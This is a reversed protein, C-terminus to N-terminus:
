DRESKSEDLDNRSKIKVQYPKGNSRYLLPVHYIKSEIFRKPRLRPQIIDEIPVETSYDDPNEGINDWSLGHPKHKIPKEEEPEWEKNAEKKPKEFEWDRNEDWHDKGPPEEYSPHGVTDKSGPIVKKAQGFISHGFGFPAIKIGISGGHLINGLHPILGPSTNKDGHPDPRSFIKFPNLLLSPKDEDDPRKFFIASCMCVMSTLALILFYTERYEMKDM